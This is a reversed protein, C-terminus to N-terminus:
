SGTSVEPKVVVHLDVGLLQDSSNELNLTAWVCLSFYLLVYCRTSTVPQWCASATIHESGEIVTEASMQQM